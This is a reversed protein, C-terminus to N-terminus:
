PHTSGWLKDSLWLTLAVVLTVMPWLLLGMFPLLITAAFLTLISTLLASVGLAAAALGLARRLGGGSFRAPRWSWWIWVLPLSLWLMYFMPWFAQDATPYSGGPVQAEFQAHREATEIALMSIGAWIAATVSAGYLLTFLGGALVRQKLGRPCHAAHYPASNTATVM